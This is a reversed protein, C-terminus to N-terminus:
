FLKFSPFLPFQSSLTHARSLPRPPTSATPTTAGCGTQTSTRTRTPPTSRCRDSRPTMASTWVQWCASRLIGSHKKVFASDLATFRGCCRIALVSRCVHRMAGILACRMAYPAAHLRSRSIASFLKIDFNGSWDAIHGVVRSRTGRLGSMLLSNAWVSRM